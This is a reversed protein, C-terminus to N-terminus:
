EDGRREAQPTGTELDRISGFVVERGYRDAIRKIHQLVLPQPTIEFGVSIERDNITYRWDNEGSLPALVLDIEKALRREGRTSASRSPYIDAAVIQPQLEMENYVLQRQLGRTIELLEEIMEQVGREPEQQGHERGEEADKLARELQPWWMRIADILRSEDIPRESFANMSKVLRTVDDLRPLTAQFQSLPGVLEAPRVNLLFPSVRSIEISKSLAGAEFNLWPSGINERTVCLIGFHTADLEKGVDASWRAGKDIDESSVYPEISQLVSPLWNRLAIAVRHSLDGSWSIFVKM